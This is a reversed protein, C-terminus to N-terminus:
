HPALRVRHRCADIFIDNSSPIFKQFVSYRTLVSSLLIALTSSSMLTLLDAANTKNDSSHVQAVFWQCPLWTLAAILVLAFVYSWGSLDIVNVNHLRNYNNVFIFGPIVWLINHLELM